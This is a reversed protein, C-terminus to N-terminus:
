LPTATAAATTIASEPPPCVPANESQFRFLAMRLTPPFLPTSTASLSSARTTSRITRREQPACARACARACPPLNSGALSERSVHM